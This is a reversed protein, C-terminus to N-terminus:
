RLLMRSFQRGDQWGKKVLREFYSFRDPSKGLEDMCSKFEAKSITRIIRALNRRAEETPEAPVMARRADSMYECYAAYLEDTKSDEGADAPDGNTTADM